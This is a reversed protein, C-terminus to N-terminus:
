REDLDVDKGEWVFNFKLTTEVSASTFFRTEDCNCWEVSLSWSWVVEVQAHHSVNEVLTPTTTITPTTSIKHNVVIVSKFHVYVIKWCCGVLDLVYTTLSRAKGQWTHSCLTTWSRIPCSMILALLRQLLFLNNPDVEKGKWCIKIRSNNASYSHDDKHNPKIVM